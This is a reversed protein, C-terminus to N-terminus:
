FKKDIENLDISEVSDEGDLEESLSTEIQNPLKVDFTSLLKKM